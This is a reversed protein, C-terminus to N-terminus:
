GKITKRLEEKVEETLRLRWKNGGAPKYAIVNYTRGRVWFPLDHLSIPIAHGDSFYLIVLSYTSDPVVETSDLVAEFPGVTEVPM